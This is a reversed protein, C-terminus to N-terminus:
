ANVEAVRLVASRARPNAQVEATSPKQAKGVPRLLGHTQKGTVPVSKPLQPGQAQDRIFHKVIRDELSHFSIVVLRGGPALVQLADTLIQQLEDLEHNLAIRIAQFTRTAPHKRRERSPVVREILEALQQTRNIPAQSREQVIARAIRRAFREEGYKFLIQVLDAEAIQALWEAATLGQSNDMRMDLPGDHRFSFGRTAEDLQPSSVGLDLLLGDVQKIVGHPELAAKLDAFRSHIHNFRPENAYRTEAIQIAAPDKDFAILRGESSLQQLILGSHGGRGFTGDVYCGAPRINLAAVAENLLVAQHEIATQM